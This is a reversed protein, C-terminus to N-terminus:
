AVVPVSHHTDGSTQPPTSDMTQNAAPKWDAMKVRISRVFIAVRQRRWNLAEAIEGYGFDLYLLTVVQREQPTLTSPLMPMDRQLVHVEDEGAIIAPMAEQLEDLSALDRKVKKIFDKMRNKMCAFIYRDLATRGADDKREGTVVKRLDYSVLAQWVVIRYAQCIDEFDDQCFDVTRSATSIVLGEYKKVLASPDSDAM